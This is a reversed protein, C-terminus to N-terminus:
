PLVDVETVMVSVLLELLCLLVNSSRLKVKQMSNNSEKSLGLSM